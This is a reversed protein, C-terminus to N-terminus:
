KEGDSSLSNMLAWQSLIRIETELSEIKWNLAKLNADEVKLFTARGAKYSNYTLLALEEANELAEKNIESQVKLGEVRDKAKHWQLNIINFTETKKEKIYKIDFSKAQINGKIRRGDFLPMKFNLGLINQNFTELSPGNPYDLSAKAFLKLQPLRQAKLADRDSKYSKKLESFAKVSPNKDSPRKLISKELLKKLKKISDFNLVITTEEDTDSLM